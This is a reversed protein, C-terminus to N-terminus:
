ENKVEASSAPSHDADRGTRVKDGPFPVGTSMPYSAPRAEAGIQVRLVSLLLFPFLLSLASPPFLSVFYILFFVSYSSAFFSTLTGFIFAIVFSFLSSPLCSRTYYHQHLLNKM